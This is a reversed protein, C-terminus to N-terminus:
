NLIMFARDWLITAFLTAFKIIVLQIVSDNTKPLHSIVTYVWLLVPINRSRMVGCQLRVGALSLPSIGFM